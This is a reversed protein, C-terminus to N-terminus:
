QLLELAGKGFVLFEGMHSVDFVGVSNKVTLHESKVGDYQIPMSFGVFDVMKAGLSVHSDFLATKKM